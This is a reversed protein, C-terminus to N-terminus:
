SEEIGSLWRVVPNTLLCAVQNAKAPSAGLSILLKKYFHEKVPDKSKSLLHLYEQDSIGLDIIKTVTTAEKSM